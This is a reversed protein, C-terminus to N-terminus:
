RASGPAHWGGFAHVVVDAAGISGRARKRFDAISWGSSTVGIVPVDLRRRRELPCGSPFIKKRAPDGTARFLVLADCPPQSM